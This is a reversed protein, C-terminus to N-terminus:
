LKIKIEMSVISSVSCRFTTAVFSIFGKRLSTSDDRLNNSVVYDHKKNRKKLHDFFRRSM